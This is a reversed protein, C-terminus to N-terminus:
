KDAKNADEIGENYKFKVDQKWSLLDEIPIALIVVSLNKHVEHSEIMELARELLDKM